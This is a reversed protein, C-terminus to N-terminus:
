RVAEALYTAADQEGPVYRWEGVGIREGDEVAALRYRISQRESALFLRIEGLGAPLDTVYDVGSLTFAVDVEREYAVPEVPIIVKTSEREGSPAPPTPPVYSFGSVDLTAYSAEHSRAGQESESRLTLTNSSRYPRSLTTQTDNGRYVVEGEREVITAAQESNEYPLWKVLMEGNGQDTVRCHMPPQLLPAPPLAAVQEDALFTPLLDDGGPEGGSVLGYGREETWAPDPTQAEPPPADYLGLGGIVVDYTTASGSGDAWLRYKRENTPREIQMHVTEGPLVVVGQNADEPYLGDSFAVESAGDNRIWAETGPRLLDYSQFHYYMLEFREDSSIQGEVRTGEGSPPGTMSVGQTVSATADEYTQWSSEFTRVGSPLHQTGSWGHPDATYTRAMGRLLARADMWREEDPLTADTHEEFLWIWLAAVTPTAYSESFNGDHTIGDIELGPGFSREDSDTVPDEGGVHISYREGIKPESLEVLENSGHGNVSPVKHDQWLEEVVGDNVSGSSLGYVVLDYQALDTTDSLAVAWGDVGDPDYVGYRSLTEQLYDRVTQDHNSTSSGSVLAEPM